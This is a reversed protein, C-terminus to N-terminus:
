GVKPGGHLRSLKHVPQRVALEELMKHDIEVGNGQGCRVRVVAGPRGFQMIDALHNM